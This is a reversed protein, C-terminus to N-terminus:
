VTQSVLFLSSAQCFFHFALLIDSCTQLLYIVVDSSSILLSSLSKVQRCLHVLLVESLVLNLYIISTHDHIFGRDMAAMRVLLYLIHFFIM